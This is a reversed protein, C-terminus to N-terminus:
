NKEIEFYQEIKKTLVPRLETQNKFRVQDYMSINSGIEQRADIADRLKYLLLVKKGMGQALGIEHHVNRNGYSLDAIVLASKKIGEIIREYIDGSYGDDAKFKEYEKIVENLQSETKKGTADYGIMEPAAMFIEENDDFPENIGRKRVFIISTKVGAGFHSFACQPLKYM